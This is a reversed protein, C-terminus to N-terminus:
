KGVFQQIKAKPIVGVSRGAMNGHDFLILTPISMIEFEMALEQEEDVNIKGVKLGNTDENAVQEVFPSIMRCPGCWNAWFDLLVPQASEMVEKSFNDKTITLIAM